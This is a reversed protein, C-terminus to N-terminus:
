EFHAHARIVFHDLRLAVEGVGLVVLQACDEIVAFRQHIEIRHLRCAGPGNTGGYGATTRRRNRAATSRDAGASSASGAAGASAPSSSAAAGANNRATAAELPRFAM